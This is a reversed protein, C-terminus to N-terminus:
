KNVFAFMHVVLDQKMRELESTMDKGWRIYKDDQVCIQKPDPGLGALHAVQSVNITAERVRCAFM